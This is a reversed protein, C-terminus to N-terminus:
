VNEYIETISSKKSVKTYIQTTALDEHGLLEQITKIDTGNQLLHVAFSHRLTNANIDKHIGAENAYHKIIKWFGQRTMQEGKLNFYVYDLKNVNQETRQELYIKLCELADPGIPIIREKNNIGTCKICSLELDIDELKLNLLETVKIGAAYIIELMCKDRIGKFQSVDPISLLKDIENDTLVGPLKRKIKPIEYFYVPNYNVLGKNILYKLFNRVSVINRAISSDSKNKGKLFKVYSMITMGDIENISQNRYVIFQTFKNLDRFYAKLTNESLQKSKLVSIYENVLNDM